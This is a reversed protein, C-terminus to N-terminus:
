SYDSKKDSKEGKVTGNQLVALHFSNGSRSYIRSIKTDVYADGWISSEKESNKNNKRKNKRNKRKNKKRKRGRGKKTRNVKKPKVSRSKQNRRPYNKKRRKRLKKPPRQKPSARLRSKTRTPLSRNGHVDTALTSNTTALSRLTTTTRASVTPACCLLVIYLLFLFAALRFFYSKSHLVPKHSIKNTSDNSSHQVYNACKQCRLNACTLLKTSQQHVMTSLCSSKSDVSTM